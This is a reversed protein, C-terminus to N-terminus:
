MYAKYFQFFNNHAQVLTRQFSKLFKLELQPYWIVDNLNLSNLNTTNEKKEKSWVLVM